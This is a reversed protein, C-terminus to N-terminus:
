RGARRSHRDAARDSPATAGSEPRGLGGIGEGSHLAQRMSAIETTLAGLAGEQREQNRRFKMFEQKQLRVHEQRTSEAASLKQGM